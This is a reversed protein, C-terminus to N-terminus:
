MSCTFKLDPKFYPFPLFFTPTVILSPLPLSSPALSCKTPCLFGIYLSTVLLPSTLNLTIGSANHKCM